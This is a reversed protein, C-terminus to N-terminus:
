SNIFFVKVYINWTNDIKPWNVHIYPQAIQYHREYEVLVGTEVMQLGLDTPVIYQTM